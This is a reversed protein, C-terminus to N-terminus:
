SAASSQQDAVVSSVVQNRGNRKAQYLAMDAADFLLQASDPSVVTVDSTAAGISVTVFEPSNGAHPIALSRIMRRIKEAVAVAGREDTDALLVAIEEGGYRCALDTPRQVCTRVVASIQRLCEDGAAHGYTDNFAKFHDADIMLLSMPAHSRRAREMMEEFRINFTRRNALKTLEDTNALANLEDQIAKQRTIDRSIAVAHSTADIASPLKNLV